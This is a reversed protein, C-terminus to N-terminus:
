GQWAPKTRRFEFPLVFSAPELNVVLKLCNTCEMETDLDTIALNVSHHLKEDDHLIVVNTEEFPAGCWM